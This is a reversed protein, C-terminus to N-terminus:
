DLDGDNDVDFLRMSHSGDTSLVMPQWSAGHDLNLFVEVLDPDMGQHMEATVFDIDGDLDLDGAAVFHHVAEVSDRVIHERWLGNPDVPQEFWSIRYLEENHEAPTLIIDVRHDGDIDGVAVYTHPWTWSETYRNRQWNSVRREGSNKYWVSNLVVDPRDDRDIDYVCLGEGEPGVVKQYDWQQPSTQWYFHLTSDPNGFATQGRAVIDLDGDADFDAAEIDHL